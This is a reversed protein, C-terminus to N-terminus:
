FTAREELSTERYTAYAAEALECAQEVHARSGGVYIPELKEGTAPNVAQINAQYRDSITAWDANRRANDYM